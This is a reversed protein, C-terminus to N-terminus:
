FVTINKVVKKIKDSVQSGGYDCNTEFESLTKFEGYKVLVSGVGKIFEKVDAVTQQDLGSENPKRWIKELNGWFKLAIELDVFESATKVKVNDHSYYYPHSGRKLVDHVFLSSPLKHQGYEHDLSGRSSLSLVFTDFSLGKLDRLVNSEYRIVELENGYISRPVGGFTFYRKEFERKDLEESNSLTFGRVAELEEKSWVPMCWVGTNQFKLFEQFNDRSPSTAIVKHAQVQTTKKYNSSPDILYYNNENALAACYGPKYDDLPVSFVHYKGDNGGHDKPPIFAFVKRDKRAEYIVLQQDKLLLQLFYTLSRTKGTGPNGTVVANSRRTSKLYKYVDSWLNRSDKRTILTTNTENLLLYDKLTTVEIGHNHQQPKSTLLENAYNTKEKDYQWKNRDKSHDFIRWSEESNSEQIQKWKKGEFVSFSTKTTHISRISTTTSKPVTFLKNVSKNKQVLNKTTKSGKHLIKCFM